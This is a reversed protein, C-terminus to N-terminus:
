MYLRLTKVEFTHFHLPLAGQAEQPEAIPNELLDCEGVRQAPLAFSLTCDTDGRKAEYLRVIVDGSGDEAPKVTDIFVNEKDLSFASFAGEAGPMRLEGASVQLPVNLAYAERVVPCAAFSGEWATFAYTFTHEGNDARMEPCAAARLLTLAITNGKQSVGYKCDNLVAAGHTQDCLATYRQNCVEFRSEDYGRSRHTPRQMYGFQIENIAEDARVDVPFAVKLLRHLENWDVKTVFDLRRSGSALVIEQSFFSNEIKREMRVSARLGSEEGLALTVPEELAVPSLDYNSDVDWADFLRPVDKFMRLENMPGDAFERGTAKDVFSIVEGRENLQARVLENEIVAGGNELRARAAAAPASEQAPYLTVAGCSPVEVLATVVGNKVQTPVLEGCATKAGRAFSEPLTVLERRPFSTSNFVTAGDGSALASLADNKVAEAEGLIWRHDARAEVYVRAISSGPLIDHFQNLLLKKWAADMRALPYAYGNGAAGALVGWMEAERLSLESKRNGKKIAAQSTFVGRHASFYLEGNYTHKPGGESEMMEFFRNPSEMKVRPMGELDKERMAFEVYDRAPGGGGDGYGFPLLFADLDHKQVRKNWTECLEKPDTRYTYSTPLFTDIASGDEGQWTFYHYPFQDGENYSWFIKQTVLYKVGCSKLLQPLAASYGFTDPLWLIVSDVGLEDKFFRKGHILQRALSEGSTMNTDPEVWMAGEAIWQGGKIAQKIREYLEPYRERCMVYSAPQSQLFKYEPYEELLRLQAAFTRSTKRRTEAMPWLWALDLHANGIGYFVPSTSGNHAALAPRLVERARRYDEIRKELPQEFDVTLTFQELAQQLKEARLSEPDVQQLLQDLTEVDMSLQYADENWVGYTCGEFLAREGEVDPDTYSGPLVPGTACGGLPSEPYFHGAYSEILLDYTEGAHGEATLVNDEIYHHAPDVWKARYTGFSKGNVFLTAEGGTRLNMAIRKGEAEKPLTVRGKLWMYEYTHGWRTGDAVPAFDGKLAEDPTLEDMTRWGAMEIPGLPLYLDMLLTRKWHALRDRWESHMYKM